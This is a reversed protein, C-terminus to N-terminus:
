QVRSILIDHSNIKQKIFMHAQRVGSSGLNIAFSDSEKVRVSFWFFAMSVILFVAVKNTRSDGIVKCCCTLCSKAIRILSFAFLLLYIPYLNAIYKYNGNPAILSITILGVFFSFYYFLLKKDREFYLYLTGLIVISLSHLIQRDLLNFFWFKGSMGGRQLSSTVAPKLLNPIKYFFIFYYSIGILTIGVWFYKDKFCKWQKAFLLFLFCIPILKVSLMHSHITGVFAIICALKYKNNDEIFGKYFLFLTLVFFFQFAMYQRAYVAIFNEIRTFALFFVALVGVAGGYLDKSMFFVLLMLLMSFFISVSRASLENTGFLYIPIAMLYHPLLARKYVVGNELIPFGHKIIGKAALVSIAEDEAYQNYNANKIRFFLAALLIATLLIYCVKNKMFNM